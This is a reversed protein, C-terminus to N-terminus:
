EVKELTSSIPESSNQVTNVDNQFYCSDEDQRQQLKARGAAKHQRLQPGSRLAPPAVVQGPTGIRLEILSGELADTPSLKLPPPPFVLMLWVKVAGESKTSCAMEM